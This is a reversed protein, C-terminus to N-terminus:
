QDIRELDKKKVSFYVTPHIGINCNHCLPVVYATKDGNHIQVHAGDKAAEDCDWRSCKGFTQERKDKWWAKWSRKGAPPEDEGTGEMNHVKILYSNSNSVRLMDLLGM